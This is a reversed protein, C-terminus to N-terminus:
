MDVGTPAVHQATNSAIFEVLHCVCEDPLRRFCCELNNDCHSTLALHKLMVCNKVDHWQQILSALKQWGNDLAVKESTRGSSDTETTSCGAQLLVVAVRLIWDEMEKYESEQSAASTERKRQPAGYPAIDPVGFQAHREEFWEPALECRRSALVSLPGQGHSNVMCLKAGRAILLILVQLDCNLRIAACVPTELGDMSVPM